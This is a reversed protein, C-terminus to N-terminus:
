PIQLWQCQPDSHDLPSQFRLQLTRRHQDKCSIVSNGFLSDAGIRRLYSGLHYFVEQGSPRCDINEAPLMTKVQFHDVGSDSGIKFFVRKQDILFDSM